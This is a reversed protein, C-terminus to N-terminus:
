GPCGCSETRNSSMICQDQQFRGKTCWFQHVGHPRRRATSVSSEILKISQESITNANDDVGIEGIDLPNLGTQRDSITAQADSTDDSAGEAKKAEAAPM